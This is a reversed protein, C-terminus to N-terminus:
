KHHLLAFSAAVKTLWLKQTSIQNALSRGPESHQIEDLKIKKILFSTSSIGGFFSVITITKLVLGDLIPTFFEEESRKHVVIQFYTIPSHVRKNSCCYVSM